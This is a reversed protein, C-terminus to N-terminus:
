QIRNFEVQAQELLAQLESKPAGLYLSSTMQELTSRVFEHARALRRNQKDLDDHTQRLAEEARKREEVEQELWENSKIVAATREEVRQELTEVQGQLQGAMHNFAHALNSIEPSPQGESVRVTLDGQSMKTAVLHLERLPNSVQRALLINLGVALLVVIMGVLLSQFRLAAVKEDLPATSLSVSVAGLTERGATVARGALVQGDLHEFFIQDNPSQVLKEGQPDPERSFTPDSATSEVLLAGDPNYFRVV